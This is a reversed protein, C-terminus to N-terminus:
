ARGQAEDRARLFASRSVGLHDAAYHALLKWMRDPNMWDYGLMSQLSYGDLIATLEELTENVSCSPRFEGAEVGESLIAMIQGRWESRLPRLVGAYAEERMARGWLDFRILAEERAFGGPPMSATLFRALKVSPRAASAVIAARRRTELENQWRTAAVLLEDKTAFYYHIIASSLSARRAIDAVRTGAMGKDVIVACAAALIRERTAAARIGPSRRGEGSRATRSPGERAAASPRARVWGPTATRCEAAIRAVVNVAASEAPIPASRREDGTSGSGATSGGVALAVKIRELMRAATRQSVGLEHALRAPGVATDPDAVLGVARFWAGLPTSSRAFVTGSTPSLQRGCVDCSYSHRGRLKHFRRTRGCHPCHAHAGDPSYRLRWLWDRCDEDDWTIPTHRGCGDMPLLM